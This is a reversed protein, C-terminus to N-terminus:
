TSTITLTQTPSMSSLFNNSGGYAALVHYTGAPLKTATLRCSGSGSSLKITCLKLGAEKITVSGTPAPASGTFTVIASFKEAQESGYTVQAASLTLSAVSAAKGVTITRKVVPAANYTGPGSNSSTGAQNADIVCSGARLYQLTAGNTGTVACTGAKTTADVSFVVPNKSAGGKASLSASDGVTGHAPATFTIHQSAPSITIARQVQPAASYNGNGAQNADIVCAGVGTYHVTAGNTGSVTCAGVWSSSDVTFVVPSGSAGGSAPLTAKKGYTGANPATFTLQQSGPTVLIVQQVQTAQLYANNGAQNADLVCSGTGTFSVMAGSLTCAGTSSAPDVSFVVPNGSGGGTASLNVSSGVTGTAPANFTITQAPLAVLTASTSAGGGAGSLNVAQVSFTVQAGTPVNQFLYSQTSAPVMVAPGSSGAPSTESVAYGTIASSGASAPPNWSLTATDSSNSTSLTLGAPVGPVVPTQVAIDAPMDVTTEVTVQPGGNAPIEVVRDDFTDSVYVNGASDVAVGEPLDLGTGVTSTTGTGAAIKVVKNNLTDTYYVDGQADVAVAAALVGSALTKVPGGAAPQEIINGSDAVFVDGASDVTMGQPANTDTLVTHSQSGNAPYETVWSPSGIGGGSSSGVYLNGASDLNVGFIGLAGSVVTAPSGGAAAFRLVQDAKVNAVYVDGQPDVALYEPGNLGSALTVMPVGSNAPVEVLQNGYYDALFLNMSPVANATPTVLAGHYQTPQGPAGPGISNIAVVECSYEDGNVLGTVVVPSSPGSITASGNSPNTVDSCTAKYSTVASYSATAPPPDFSVTAQGAGAKASVNVPAPPASNVAIGGVNGFGTGIAAENAGEVPEMVLRNNALEAYYENNGLDFAYVSPDTVDSYWGPFSASPQEAFNARLSAAPDTITVFGQQDVAIDVPGHSATSVVTSQTGSGKGTIQVVRDNGTDAVLVNGQADVAVGQPGALGSGVNQQPGSPPVKVVRNNGTDAVFLDGSNDLALGAPASFGSGVTQWSGGGAPVEVVANAGTEAVFVDGQADAAVGQPDNLGTAVTTQSGDAASIEVVKGAGPETLYVNALPSATKLPVAWPGPLSSASSGGANFAQVYFWYYEGNVLGTVTIPSATGTATQQGSVGTVPDTYGTTVQYSTIPTYGDNAPPSFHVTAQGDGATVSTITPPDPFTYPTVANSAASSPSTGVGNTETVTFTYSVGTTLGGVVVSHYSPDYSASVAAPHSTVTYYALASGGDSGPNWSVTAEGGTLPSATVSSPAAPPNGGGIPSVYGQLGGGTEGDTPENADYGVGWATWSANMAWNGNVVSPNTRGGGVVIGVHGPGPAETLNGYVAADGPQPSYGSSLSHWTGHALGWFYFSASWPNINSGGYAFTFPVGAQRWVWAAFDACWAQSRLGGGCDSGVGWYASYKNCESSPPNDMTGEQGVAISAISSGLSSVSEHAARHSVVHQPYTVVTPTPRPPAKVQTRHVAKVHARHVVASGSRHGSVSAAQAPGAIMAQAPGAILCTLGIVAALCGAWKARIDIGRNSARM